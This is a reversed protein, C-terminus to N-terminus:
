HFLLGVVDTSRAREVVCLKSEACSLFFQQARYEARAAPLRSVGVPVTSRVCNYRVSTPKLLMYPVPKPAKLVRACPANVWFTWCEARTGTSMVCGLTTSPPTVAVPTSERSRPLKIVM